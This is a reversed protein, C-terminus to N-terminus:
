KVFVIKQNFSNDNVSVRVFYVGEYNKNPIEFQHKGATFNKNAFATIKKGMIDYLEINVSSSEKLEM